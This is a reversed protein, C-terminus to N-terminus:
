VRIPAKEQQIESLLEDIAPRLDYLSPAQVNFFFNFLEMKLTLCTITFFNRWTNHIHTTNPICFFDNALEVNSYTEIAPSKVQLIIGATGVVVAISFIWLFLRFFFQYQNRYHFFDMIKLVFVQRAGDGCVELGGESQQVGRGRKDVWGHVQTM